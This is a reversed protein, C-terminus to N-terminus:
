KPSIMKMASAAMIQPLSPNSSKSRKALARSGHNRLRRLSGPPSGLSSVKRRITVAMSGSLNQSHKGGEDERDTPLEPVLEDGDVTLGQPLAELVGIGAGAQVEDARPRRVVLQGEALERNIPFGILGGGHGLEDVPEIEFTM